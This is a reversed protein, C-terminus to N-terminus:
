HSSNETTYKNTIAYKIQWIKTPDMVARKVRKFDSPDMLTAMEALIKAVERDFKLDLEVLLDVCHTKNGNYYTSVFYEANHVSRDIAIANIAKEMDTYM